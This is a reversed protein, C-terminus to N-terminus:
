RRNQQQLVAGGPGLLWAQFSKTLINKSNNSVTPAETTDVVSAFDLTDEKNFSEKSYPIFVIPFYYKRIV